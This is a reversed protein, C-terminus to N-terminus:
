NQYDVRSVYNRCKKTLLNPKIIERNPRICVFDDGWKHNYWYSFVGMKVPLRRDISFFGKPDQRRNEEERQGQPEGGAPGPEPRSFSAPVIGSVFRTKEGWRHAGSGTPNGMRDCEM